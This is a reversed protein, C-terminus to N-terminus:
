HHATRIPNSFNWAQVASDGQIYFMKEEPSYVSEAWYSVKASFEDSTWLIEGTETELCYKGIILIPKM